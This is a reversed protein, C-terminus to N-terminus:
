RFRFSQKGAEGFIIKFIRCLLNSFPAFQTVWCTGNRTGLGSLPIINDLSSLLRRVTLVCIAWVALSMGLFLISRWTAIIVFGWFPLLRHLIILLYSIRVFTFYILSLINITFNIEGADICRVDVIASFVYLYFEQPLIVVLFCLVFIYCLVRLYFHVCEAAPIVYSDVINEKGVFKLMFNYWLVCSFVINVMVVNYQM